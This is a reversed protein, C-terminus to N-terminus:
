SIEEKLRDYEDKIALFTDEDGSAADPHYTKCLAKFRKDLKEGTDCGAFFMSTLDPRELLENQKDILKEIKNKKKNLRKIMPILEEFEESSLEGDADGFCKMIKGLLTFYRNSADELIENEGGSLAVRIEEMFADVDNVHDSLRDYYYQGKEDDEELYNQNKDFDEARDHIVEKYQEEDETDFSLEKAWSKWALGVSVLIVFLDMVAVTFIVIFRIREFGQVTAIYASLDKQIWFIIPIAVSAALFVIFVVNIFAIVLYNTLKLIDFAYGSFFAVPEGLELAIREYDREAAKYIDKYVTYVLEYMTEFFTIIANKTINFVMKILSFCNSVILILMVLIGGFSGVKIVAKVIEPTRSVNDYLYLGAAVLGSFLLMTVLTELKEFVKETLKCVFAVILCPLAAISIINLKVSRYILEM